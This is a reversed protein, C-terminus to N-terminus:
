LGGHKNTWEIVYPVSSVDSNVRIYNEGPMWEIWKSQPSVGRLISSTVGLHTLRAYKNGPVTSIVLVDGAVMPNSFDLSKLSGDPPQHYITFDDITRDVNLTFKFGTEISGDYEVLHSLPGTTATTLGTDTTMTLEYFDPNFCRIVVEMEPEKTFMPPDNSEVRGVIEVTLGDEMYFTLTVSRKTMFFKYLRQRIARVTGGGYMSEMGFLFKIDRPERRSSHYQEGDLNAFSTSVLTAKVPGLGDISKLIIGDSVNTLTLNLLEGQENVAEVKTLM